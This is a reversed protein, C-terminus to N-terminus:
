EGTKPWLLCKEQPQRPYQSCATPRQDYISCLNNNELFPCHKDPQETFNIVWSTTGPRSFMSLKIGRDKALQRLRFGEEKDVGLNGPSKCCNAGCQNVCIDYTAALRRGIYKGNVYVDEYGNLPTKVTISM